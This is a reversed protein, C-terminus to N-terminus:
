HFFSNCIQKSELTILKDSYCNNHENLMRQQLGLIAAINEFGACNLSKCLRLVNLFLTNESNLNFYKVKKNYKEIKGDTETDM